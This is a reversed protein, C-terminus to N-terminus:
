DCVIIESVVIKAITLYATVFSFAFSPPSFKIKIVRSTEEKKLWSVGSSHEGVQFLAFCTKLVLAIFPYLNIRM